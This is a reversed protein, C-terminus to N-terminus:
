KRTGPHILLRGLAHTYEALNLSEGPRAKSGSLGDFGTAFQVRSGCFGERGLCVNVTVDSEDVHMLFDVDGAKDYKVIKCYVDRFHAVLAFQPLLARILPEIHGTILQRAVGLWGFEEMRFGMSARSYAAVYTDVEHALAECFASDFLPVAYAQESVFFAGAAEAAVRAAPAVGEWARTPLPAGLPLPPPASAAESARLVASLAAASPLLRAEVDLFRFNRPDAPRWLRRFFDLVANMGSAHTVRVAREALRRAYGYSCFLDVLFLERLALAEIATTALAAAAPPPVAAANAAAGRDGVFSAGAAGAAGVGKGNGLAAAEGDRAEEAREEVGIESRLFYAIAEAGSRAGAGRAAAVAAASFGAGLLSAEPAAADIGASGGGGAGEVGGAAGSVEDDGGGGCHVSTRGEIHLEVAAALRGYGHFDGGSGGSLARQPPGEIRAVRLRALAALAGPSHAHAARMAAGADAAGLAGRIADEGGPHESLFTAVDHAFGDIVLLGAARASALSLLPEM